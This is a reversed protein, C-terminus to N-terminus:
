EVVLKIPATQATRMTNVQIFYIGKSLQDIALQTSSIGASFHNSQNLVTKGETNQITISSTHQEKSFCSITINDKAPNPYCNLMLFDNEPEYQISKVPSSIVDGNTKVTNIQYYNWGIEPTADISSYHNLSANIGQSTVTNLLQFNLGDKSKLVEYHSIGAENEIDWILSNGNSSTSLNFDMTMPGLPSCSVVATGGFSLPVTTTASSFNSLCIVYRTNSAVTLPPEWNTMSSAGVPLSSALGTFQECAGNYNCRVPALTGAGIAACATANYPWMAWDLCNFTGSSPTGISFTLSGGTLVNVIMWTSNLEGSILCGNNGSGSPNVNPNAACTGPSCIENVTGFGNPDISFSANSCVNAGIACDGATTPGGTPCTLQFTISSAATSTADLLFYYTTGSTLSISGLSGTTVATGVCTWGTSSCSTSYGIAYGGGSINTINFSYTGTSTATYSYVSELGPTATACLTSIASSTGTTSTIYGVGCGLINTPSSCPSFGCSNCTVTTTICNTATGCGGCNQNINMYYTGSSPATFTVTGSGFAVVPGSSSGTHITICRTAGNSNQVATFTYSNGAVIGFIENYEGSYNSADITTTTTNTPATVSAYLVGGSCQGYAQHLVLAFVFYLLLKTKM